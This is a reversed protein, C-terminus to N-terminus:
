ARRTPPSPRPQRRDPHRHHAPDRGGGPRRYEQHQAAVSFDPVPSNPRFQRPRDLHGSRRQGAAVLRSGSVGELRAARLQNWATAADAMWVHHTVGNEDDYDFTENGSALDFRIQAESDHASLWAEEIAQSERPQGKAWDYGYNAIAAVAKGPGVARVAEVLRQVFWNQSAVPGPEGTQWHEDYLMLYVKDTVRGYDALNWTEDGVPATLAVSLGKPAFARRTEALFRKYDPQRPRRCTKSTSFLAPRAVSLSCACLGSRDAAGTRGSRPALRRDRGSGMGPREVNQVLPLVQPRRPANAMIKDFVPDDVVKFDHNPGTM